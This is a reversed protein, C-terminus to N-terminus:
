IFLQTLYNFYNHIKFRSIRFNSSKLIVVIKKEPAIVGKQKVLNQIWFGSLLRDKLRNALRKHIM